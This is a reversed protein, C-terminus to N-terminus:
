KSQLVQPSNTLQICTCHLRSFATGPEGTLLVKEPDVTEPLVGWTGHHDSFFSAAQQILEKSIEDRDFIEIRQTKIKGAVRQSTRPGGWVREAQPWRPFFTIGGM